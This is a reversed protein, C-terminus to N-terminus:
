ERFRDRLDSDDWPFSTPHRATMWAASASVVLAALRWLVAFSSLPAFYPSLRGFLDGDSALYRLAIVVESVKYRMAYIVLGDARVIEAGHMPYIQFLLIVGLLIVVTTTWLRIM